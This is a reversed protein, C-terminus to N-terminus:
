PIQTEKVRLLYIDHKYSNENIDAHALVFAALSGDESFSPNSVFQLRLLTEPTVPNM